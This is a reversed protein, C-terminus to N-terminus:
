EQIVPVAAQFAALAQSAAFVFQAVTEEPLSPDWAAAEARTVAIYAVRHAKSIAMVAKDESCLVPADPLDCDPLSVYEIALRDAAALADEMAAIDNKVGGTACAALPLAVALAAALNRLKM